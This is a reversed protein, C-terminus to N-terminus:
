FIEMREKKHPKAPLVMITQLYKTDYYYKQYAISFGKQLMLPILKQSFTEYVLTVENRNALFIAENVLTNIDEIEEDPNAYINLVRPNMSGPAIIHVTSRVIKRHRFISESAAKNKKMRRAGKGKFTYEYTRPNVLTLLAQYNESCLLTDYESWEYVYYKLYDKIYKSREEIKPYFYM